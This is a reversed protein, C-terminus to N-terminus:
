QHELFDAILLDIRSKEGICIDILCGYRGKEKKTFLGEFYSSIYKLIHFNGISFAFVDLIFWKTMPVVAVRTRLYFQHKGMSTFLTMTEKKIIWYFFFWNCVKDLDWSKFFFVGSFNVVTCHKMAKEDKFSMCENYIDNNNRCRIFRDVEIINCFLILLEFPFRQKKM